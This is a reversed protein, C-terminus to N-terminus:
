EKLYEKLYDELEKQFRGLTVHPPEERIISNFMLPGKHLGRGMQFVLDHSFSLSECSISLTAIRNNKRLSALHHMLDTKGSISLKPESELNGFGITGTWLTLEVKGMPKGIEEVWLFAKIDIM